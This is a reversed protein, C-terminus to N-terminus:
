RGASAERGNGVAPRTTTSLIETPEFLFRDPTTSPTQLSPRNFEDSSRPRDQRVILTDPDVSLVPTDLAPRVNVAIFAGVGFPTTVLLPGAGLRNGAVEFVIKTQGPAVTLDISRALVLDAGLGALTLPVPQAFRHSLDLEIIATNGLALDIRETGQISVADVPDVTVPVVVEDDLDATRFRLATTGAQNGTVRLIARDRGPAFDVSSPLVVTNPEDVNVTVTLKRDLDYTATRRLTLSAYGGTALPQNLTSVGIRRPVSDLAQVRIPRTQEFGIEPIRVTIDATGATKRVLNLPLLNDPLLPPSIQMVAPEVVTTDSSRIEVTVADPSNLLFMEDRKPFVPGLSALAQDSPRTAFPFLSATQKRREVKEQLQTVAFAFAVDGIFLKIEKVDIKIATSVTASSKIVTTDLDNGDPGPQTTSSLTGPLSATMSERHPNGPGYVKTVRFTHTVVTSQTDGLRASVTETTDASFSKKKDFTLNQNRKVNVKVPVRPDPSAGEIEASNEMSGGIDQSSKVQINSEKLTEKNKQTTTDLRITRDTTIGFSTISPSTSAKTWTRAGLSGQYSLVHSVEYTVEFRVEGSADGADAFIRLESNGRPITGPQALADAGDEVKTLLSLDINVGRSAYSAKSFQDGFDFFDDRTDASDKGMMLDTDIKTDSDPNLHVLEFRITPKPM